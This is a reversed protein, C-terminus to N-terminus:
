EGPVHQHAWPVVGSDGACRLVGHNKVPKASRGRRAGNANLPVEWVIGTTARQMRGDLLRAAPNICM